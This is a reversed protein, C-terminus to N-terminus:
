PNKPELGWCRTPHCWSLAKCSPQAGHPSVPAHPAPQGPTGWLPIGPCPPTQHQELEGLCRGEQICTPNGPDLEADRDWPSKPWRCCTLWCHCGRRLSARATPLGHWRPISRPGRLCLEQGGLQLQGSRQARRGEAAHEVM